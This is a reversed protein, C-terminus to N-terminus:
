DKERKHGNKAVKEKSQFTLKSDKIQGKIYFIPKKEYKQLKKKIEKKKKAGESIKNHLFTSFTNKKRLLINQMTHNEGNKSLVRANVGDRIGLRGSLETDISM